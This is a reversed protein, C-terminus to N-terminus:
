LFFFGMGDCVMKEDIIESVAFLPLAGVIVAPSTNTEFIQLFKLRIYVIVAM